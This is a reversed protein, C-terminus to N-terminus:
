GIRANECGLRKLAALWGRRTEEGANEIGAFRESEGIQRAKSRGMNHYAMIEVGALGPYKQSLAAIGALHEPLDNVGPVLPCRLVISCGSLYLFDLNRLILENSVGTLKRHRGSDTEKYDFLFHDVLPVVKEYEDRSAYGCTEICTNIGRERAKSLLDVTFDFQAMPEGGSLTLGGGSQKYFEMDRVVESLIDDSDAEDGAIKMAGAPCVGVCNGCCSCLDFDLVHGGDRIRHAGRPCADVCAFCGICKGSDFMIQRKGSISEPNHCWLCRLPCGKLFVTTRIGPGDHLSCRQIDFILGKM